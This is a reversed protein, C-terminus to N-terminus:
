RTEDAEGKCCQEEITSVLDEIEQSISQENHYVCLYKWDGDVLVQMELGHSGYSVRVGSIHRPNYAELDDSYLWKM